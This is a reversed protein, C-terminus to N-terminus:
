WRKWLAGTVLVVMLAAIIGLTLWFEDDVLFTLANTVYQSTRFGDDWFFGYWWDAFLSSGAIIYIAAAASLFVVARKLVLYIRQLKRVYWPVSLNPEVSQSPAAM